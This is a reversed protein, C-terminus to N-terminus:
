EDELTNNLSNPSAIPEPLPTPAINSDSASPTLPRVERSKPSTRHRRTRPPTFLVYFIGTYVIINFCFSAVEFRLLHVSEVGSSFILGSLDIGPFLAYAFFDLLPLLSLLSLVTVFATAILASRLLRQSRASTAIM